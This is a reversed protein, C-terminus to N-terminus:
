FSVPFQSSNGSKGVEEHTALTMPPDPAPWPIIMLIVGKIFGRVQGKREWKSRTLLCNNEGFTQDVHFSVQLFHNPQFVDNIPTYETKGM